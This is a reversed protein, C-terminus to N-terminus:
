SALSVVYPSPDFGMITMNLLILMWSGAIEPYRPYWPKSGYDIHRGNKESLQNHPSNLSAVPMVICSLPKPHLGRVTESVKCLRISVSWRLIKLCTELKLSIHEYDKWIKGRKRGHIVDLHLRISWTEWSSKRPPQVASCCTANSSFALSLPFLMQSSGM